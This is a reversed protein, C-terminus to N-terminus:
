YHPPYAALYLYAAVAEDTTIYDLVPMRGRYLVPTIGMTVPAGRRVKQVLTVLTHRAPMAALSPVAGDMLAAPTPWAGVADHCIHCTGKVVYEGIRAAPVSVTRQRHAAGPVDSLVELYAFLAQM